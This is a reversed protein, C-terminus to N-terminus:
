EAAMLSLKQIFNRHKPLLNLPHFKIESSNPSMLMAQMEGHEGAEAIMAGVYPEHTFVNELIYYQPIRVKKQWQLQGSITVSVIPVLKDETKLYYGKQEVDITHSHDWPAEAKFGDKYTLHEFPFIELKNAIPKLNCLINTSELLIQDRFKQFDSLEKSYIKSKKNYIPSDPKIAFETPGGKTTLHFHHNIWFLLTTSFSSNISGPHWIKDEILQNSDNKEWTKLIYLDVKHGKAKKIAGDTFGSSSVIAKHTVDNMDYFKMCIQEVTTVDIPYNEKKVEFAKFASIGGAEDKVTVTVDVDRKKEAIKDEVLDGIIVDVSDPNAKLCCLGVLYQVLMPTLM